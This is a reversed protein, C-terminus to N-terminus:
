TKASARVSGLRLMFASALTLVGMLAFALSFSSAEALYGVASPVAGAGLLSGIVTVLSIALSRLQPPFSLSVLSFGAPFFCVVAAAQLFVLLPTAVPGRLLGLLLTLAGTTIQFGVLARRQGLRDTLWGALFVLALGSIRALGTLTNAWSREMGMESVLFLPMMTYLGLGAGIAVAFLAAMIWLLPDNLLRLTGALRPPDSAQAGGRGLAPYLGGLLAAAVGLVALIGRWPLWLLVVEALLPATIYGLNPAFEHIAVAKGWHASAVLETITALGSPLYLGAATGLCVLGVHMGAVTSLRSIALMAVGVAISSLTITRRPTLRSSVLGSVLLGLAYGIQQLLFLTGAAGHGLGLEPEVIPLLPVLAVRSVFNLYFIGTLLLLPPLAFPLGTM